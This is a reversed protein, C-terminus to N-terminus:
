WYIYDIYKAETPFDSVMLLLPVMYNVEERVLSENLEGIPESLCPSLEQCGKVSAVRYGVGVGSGFRPWAFEICQGM